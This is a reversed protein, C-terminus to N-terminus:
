AQYLLEILYSELTVTETALALQVGLTIPQSVTTDIAYAPPSNSIAGNGNFQLAQGTQIGTNNRNRIQSTV